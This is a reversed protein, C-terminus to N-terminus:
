SGKTAFLWAFISFILMIISQKQLIDGRSVMNNSNKQIKALWKM